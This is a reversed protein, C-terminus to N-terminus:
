YNLMSINVQENAFSHDINNELVIQTEFFININM